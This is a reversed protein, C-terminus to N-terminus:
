NSYYFGYYNRERYQRRGPYRPPCPPQYERWGYGYYPQYYYGYHPPCYRHHHHYGRHYDFHSGRNGYHFGWHDAGKAGAALGGIITLVLGIMLAFEFKSPFKM